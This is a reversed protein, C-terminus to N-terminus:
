QQEPKVPGQPFLALIRQKLRETLDGLNKRDWGIINMGRVDFHVRNKSTPNLQGAECTGIV